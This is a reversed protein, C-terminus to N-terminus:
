KEHVGFMGSTRNRFEVQQLEQAVDNPDLRPLGGPALHQRPPTGTDGMSLQLRPLGGPAVGVALPPVSAGGPIADILQPSSRESHHSAPHALQILGGAAIRGSNTFGMGNLNM